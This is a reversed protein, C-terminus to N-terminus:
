NNLFSFDLKEYKSSNESFRNLFETINDADDIDEKIETLMRKSAKKELVRTLTSMIRIQEKLDEKNKGSAGELAAEAEEIKSLHQDKFKERAELIEALKKYREECIRYIADFEAISLCGKFDTFGAFEGVDEKNDKKNEEM